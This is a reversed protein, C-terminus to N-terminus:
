RALRRAPEGIVDPEADHRHQGGHAVRGSRGLLDLVDSEPLPAPEGAISVVGRVGPVDRAAYGHALKALVYGPLPSTAVEAPRRRRGARVRRSEVPSFAFLGRQCLAAMTTFEARTPCRLAYWHM